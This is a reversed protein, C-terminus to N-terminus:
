NCFNYLKLSSREIQETLEFERTQKQVVEYLGSSFPHPRGHSDRAKLM